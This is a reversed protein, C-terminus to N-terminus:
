LTRGSTTPFTMGSSSYMRGILQDINNRVYAPQDIFRPSCSKSVTGATQARQEIRPPTPPRVPTPREKQQVVEVPRTYPHTALVADVVSPDLDFKRPGLKMKTAPYGHLFM